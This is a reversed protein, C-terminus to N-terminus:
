GISIWEEKTMNKWRNEGFDWYCYEESSNKYFKKIAVILRIEENSIIQHVQHTVEAFAAEPSNFHYQENLLVWDGAYKAYSKFSYNNQQLGADQIKIELHGFNWLNTKNKQIQSIFSKLTSGNSGVKSLINKLPNFNMIKLQLRINFFYACVINKEVIYRYQDLGCLLRNKCSEVNDQIIDVGYISGLATSFDIGNELKRFLV